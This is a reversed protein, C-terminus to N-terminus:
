GNLFGRAVPSIPKRGAKAKRLKALLEPTIDSAGPMMSAVPSPTASAMGMGMGENPMEPTEEGASMDEAPTEKESLSNRAMSKKEAKKTARRTAKRKTKATSRKMKEVEYHSVSNRLGKRQLTGVSM